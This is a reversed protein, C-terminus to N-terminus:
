TEQPKRTVPVISVRNPTPRAMRRGSYVRLRSPPVGFARHFAATFHSHSDFGHALAISTLDEGASVQELSSLLRLRVRYASMTEGSLRAFWRCLQYRSLGVAAALAPLRLPRDPTKAILERIHQVADSQSESCRPAPQRFAPALVARLLGSTEEEVDFVDITRDILRQVLRRQRMYVSPSASAFQFPFAAHEADARHPTWERIAERVFDDPFAIWDCRDGVDGIQWRRYSQGRAHFTVVTPDAVYRVGRDHQIWVPTRSFVICHSTSPSGGAFGRDHPECAFTGVAITDTALLLRESPL